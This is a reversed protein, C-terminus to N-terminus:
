KITDEKNKKWTSFYKGHKGEEDQVILTDGEKLELWRALNIPITVMYSENVKRVKTEQQMKIERWAKKLSLM